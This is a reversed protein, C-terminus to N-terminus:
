DYLVPVEASTVNQFGIKLGRGTFKLWAEQKGSLFQRCVNHPSISTVSYKPTLQVLSIKLLEEVAQNQTLDKLSSAIKLGHFVVFVHALSLNMKNLEESIAKFNYSVITEKPSILCILITNPEYRKVGLKNKITGLLSGEFHEVIEIERVSMINGELNKDQVTGIVGDPPDQSTKTFWWGNQSQETQQMCLAVMASAYKEKSKKFDRHGWAANFNIGKEKQFENLKKWFDFYGWCPNFWIIEPNKLYDLHPPFIPELSKQM